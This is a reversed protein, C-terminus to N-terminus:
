KLITVKRLRIDELPRWDRDTEVQVIKDVVDMGSIVEGFITYSGDLHPAGGETKYVQRQLPSFKYDNEKEIEDLELDTYRRGSVIYFQSGDSRRRQNQTEPKRPSGVTGRRHFLDKEIHAPLTYGPGKWGIIDGKEAYRTDAAGSQIGFQSIVRHILLSDFYQENVLRIFNDRYEPTQNYLRLTINGMDTELLFGKINRIEAEAMGTSASRLSELPMPEDDQKELLKLIYTSPIVLSQLQYNVVDSFAVGITKRDSTFVPAGYNQNRIRNSIRYLRSGQFTSLNHLQGTFLQITKGPSVSLYITKSGNAANGDLLEVPRRKLKESKLLILDNIRDVAVYEKLIFKDDSDLLSIEVNNAQRVMSYRTVILSDTVFFGQGSELIREGDYSNLSVVAHFANEWGTEESEAQRDVPTDTGKKDGNRNCSYLFMILFVLWCYKM